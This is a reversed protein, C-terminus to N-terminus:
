EDTKKIDQINLQPTIKGQFENREFQFIIDINRPMVASWSGQRFAIADISKRGNGVRLKLHAGERGVPRNTEVRVARSIFLPVPNGFGTPELRDIEYLLDDNLDDLSVELDAELTPRLDKESLAEKALSELRDILEKLNENAVTFGAAAAHGGHHLLIDSCEDLAQTIHFERISRCSARTTESSEHAVIAPRYYQESLRAATLGVVGANFDPDAAFLMYPLADGKIAIGLAKEFMERTIKQRERNLNDLQQALQGARMVDSTVLLEYATLGSDLRGAANIRPGLGFGINSAKLTPPRLGILQILSFLGQRQPKRLQELGSRVLKRNEGRLPALDAVTGLAVLDLLRDASFEPNSMGELLGDTSSETRSRSELLASALKYAIGVGALDKEPYPDGPIKPNLIAYADPLTEGPMHHDTVILDLGIRNAHEIQELARIGCDVTIILSIGSQQLGDIAKINLGYGEHFRDPIYPIVEGGMAELTEMLVATSTVGDADFDGYVAIFEGKKIAFLIRDVAEQMGSLLKPDTSGAVRAHLFNDAAEFSLLGRNFLIQQLIPSYAQLALRAEATIEPKLDWRKKLSTM